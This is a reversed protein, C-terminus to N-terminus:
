LVVIGVSDFEDASRVSSCALKCFVMIRIAIVGWQM